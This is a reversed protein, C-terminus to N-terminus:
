RNLTNIQRFAVLQDYRTGVPRYYVLIQYNNETEYNSGELALPDAAEGDRVMTYLYNYFGQKLLVDKSYTKTSFNYDLKCSDLLQWNNFAGVVYIGSGPFMLKTGLLFRVKVYEAELNNNRADNRGVIYAGNADKIYDYQKYARIDDANLEVVNSDAHYTKIHQGLYLLNRSDFFRFEKLGPFVIKGDSRYVLKDQRIFQPKLGYYANDPRFNQMVTVSVEDFPNTIAIDKVNLDFQVEQHSLFLDATAANKLSVDVSIKNDVVYFRRSLVRQSTDNNAYVLLLYNGSRNLGLDENPFNLQYHVYPLRTAKSLSYNSITGEFFGTLYDYASLNSPTWDANCHIYTYNYQQLDTGLEDFSLLLQEGGSYTILPPELEMGELYLRVTHIGPKYTYDTFQLGLTTDGKEARAFVGCLLWCCLLWVKYLPRIKM